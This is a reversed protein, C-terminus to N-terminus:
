HAGMAILDGVLSVAVEESWGYEPHDAARAKAQLGALSTASTSAIEELLEGLGRHAATVAQDRREEEAKIAGIAADYKVRWERKRAAHDDMRQRLLEGDEDATWNAMVPEPNNRRFEASARAHEEDAEGYADLTPLFVTRLAEDFRSALELLAADSSPLAVVPTAITAVLMGLGGKLM